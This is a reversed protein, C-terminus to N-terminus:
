ESGVLSRTALDVLARRPIRRSGGIKCYPLAGQGMLAYVTARSLGLFKCAETVSALGDGMVNSNKKEAM